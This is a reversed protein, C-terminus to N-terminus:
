RYFAKGALWRSLLRDTLWRRWRLQLTQDLFYRLLAVAVYLLILLFITGLAHYFGSERREQLANFLTGNARNLLVNVYVIGFNLSICLTLLARASWREEGQWYAKALPWFKRGLTRLRLM